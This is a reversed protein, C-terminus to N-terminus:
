LLLLKLEDLLLEDVDEKAFLNRELVPVVGVEDGLIRGEPAGIGLDGARPGRVGLDGARRGVIEPADEVAEGAREAVVDADIAAM